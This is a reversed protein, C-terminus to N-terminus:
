NKQRLVALFGNMALKEVIRRLSKMILDFREYQSFDILPDHDNPVLLNLLDNHIRDFEHVSKLEFQNITQYNEVILLFREYQKDDESSLLNQVATIFQIRNYSM